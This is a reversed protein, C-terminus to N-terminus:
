KLLTGHGLHQLTSLDGVQLSPGGAPRVLRDHNPPRPLDALGRQHAFEGAARSQRQHRDVELAVGLQPLGEGAAVRRANQGEELQQGPLRRRRARMQQEQVLYLGRGLRERRQAVKVLLHGLQVHQRCARQELERERLRGERHGHAADLVHVEPGHMELVEHGGHALGVQGAEQAAEGQAVDLLVGQRRRQM